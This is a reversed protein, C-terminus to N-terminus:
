RPRSISGATATYLSLRCTLVNAKALSYLHPQDCRTDCDYAADGDMGVAVACHHKDLRPRMSNIVACVAKATTSKGSGPSGAIGVMYRVQQRCSHVGVCGLGQSGLKSIGPAYISFPPAEASLM